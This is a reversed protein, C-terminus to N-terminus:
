RWLPCGEKAKALKTAALSMPREFVDFLYSVQETHDIKTTNYIVIRKYLADTMTINIFNIGELM